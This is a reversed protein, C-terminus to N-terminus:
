ARGEKYENGGGSRIVEQIHRPIREIWARIKEQPLEEWAAKWAAVAEQRNKPAGKKTTARELHAWTPEIM